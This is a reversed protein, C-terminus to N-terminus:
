DPGVQVFDGVLTKMNSLYSSIREVLAEQSVAHQAPSASSIPVQAAALKYGADKVSASNAVTITQAGDKDMAAILAFGIKRVSKLMAKEGLLQRENLCLNVWSLDGM